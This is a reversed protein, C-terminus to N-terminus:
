PGHEVSVDTFAPEQTILDKFFAFCPDDAAMKAQGFLREKFSRHKDIQLVWEHNGDPSEHACSGVLYARGHWNVQSYWGWDETEPPPMALEAPVRARLWNLLSSGRIPNIPNEPELSTDFLKSQFHIVPHMSM